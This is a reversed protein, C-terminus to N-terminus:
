YEEADHNNNGTELEEPPAFGEQLVFKTRTKGEDKRRVFNMYLQNVETAYLIDLIKRICPNDEEEQCLVEIDRLKGFYFDREKELGDITVKLEMLQITLFFFYIFILSMIEDAVRQYSHRLTNVQQTLEDTKASDGRGGHHPNPPHRAVSSSTTTTATRGVATARAM